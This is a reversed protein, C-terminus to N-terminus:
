STDKVKTKREVSVNARVLSGQGFGLRTLQRSLEEKPLNLTLCRLIAEQVLHHIQFLRIADLEKAKGTHVLKSRVEYANRVADFINDSIELNEGLLVAVSRAIRYRIDQVGANFLAELATVLSLLESNKRTALHSEEWHEFALQVYEPVLPLAVKRLFANAPVYNYKSLVAPRSNRYQSNGVGSELYPGKTDTAYWYAVVAGVSGNLYLSVLRLQEQLRNNVRDFEAHKTRWQTELEGEPFSIDAVVVYAFRKKQHVVHSAEAQLEIEFKPLCALQRWLKVVKTRPWREVRFQEGLQLLQFTGHANSLPAFLM